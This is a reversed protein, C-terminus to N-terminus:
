TDFVVCYWDWTDFPILKRSMEVLPRPPRTPHPNPCPRLPPSLFPPPLPLPPSFLSSLLTLPLSLLSKQELPLFSHPFSVIYSHHTKMPLLIGMGRILLRNWANALFISVLCSLTETSNSQRLYMFFSNETSSQGSKQLFTNSLCARIWFKFWM